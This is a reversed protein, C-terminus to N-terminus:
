FQFYNHSISLGASTLGFIHLVRFVGGGDSAATGTCLCSFQTRPNITSQTKSLLSPLLSLFHHCSLSQFSLSHLKPQFHFRAFTFIVQNISGLPKGATLSSQLSYFPDLSSSFFIEQNLFSILFSHIPTENEHSQPILYFVHCPFFYKDKPMRVVVKSPFVSSLTFFASM